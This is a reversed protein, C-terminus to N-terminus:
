FSVEKSKGKDSWVSEPNLDKDKLFGRSFSGKITDDSAPSSSSSQGWSQEITTNLNGLEISSDILVPSTSREIILEQLNSLNLNYNPIVESYKNLVEQISNINSLMRTKDLLDLQTNMSNFLGINENQKLKLDEFLKIFSIDRTRKQELSLETFYKYFDKRKNIRTVINETDECLRSYHDGFTEPKNNLLSDSNDDPKINDLFNVFFDYINDWYHYILSLSIISVAIILFQNHYFPKDSSEIKETNRIDWKNNEFNTIENRENKSESSFLFEEESEKFTIKNEPLEIEKTIEEIKSVPLDEDKFGKLIKVLIKYIKTEHIFVVYQDWYYSIKDFLQAFGYIDSYAIGFILLIVSNIGHLIVRLVKIQKLIKFLFSFLGIKGILIYFRPLSKVLKWFYSKLLDTILSKNENSKNSNDLTKESSLEKYKEILQSKSLNEPKMLVLSNNLHDGQPLQVGPSSLQLNNFILFLIYIILIILILNYTM